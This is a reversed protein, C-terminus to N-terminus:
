KGKGKINKEEGLIRSTSLVPLVISGLVTGLCRTFIVGRSTSYAINSLSSVMNGPVNIPIENEGRIEDKKQTAIQHLNEVTFIYSIEFNGYVGLEEESIENKLVKIKCDFLIKVKKLDWNVGPKLQFEIESIADKPLVSIGAKNDISANTITLNELTVHDVHFKDMPASM